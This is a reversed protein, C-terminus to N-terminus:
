VAIGLRKSYVPIIIKHGIVRGSTHTAPLFCGPYHFFRCKQRTFSKFASPSAVPSVGNYQM